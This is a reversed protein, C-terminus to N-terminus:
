AQYLARTLAYRAIMNGLVLNKSKRSGFVIFMFAMAPSVLAVSCGKKKGPQMIPVLAPNLM